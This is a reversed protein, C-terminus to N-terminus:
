RSLFGRVRNAFGRPRLEACLVAGAGPGAEGYRVRPDAPAGLVSWGDPGLEYVEEESILFGAREFESRWAPAPRQVFGGLDEELGTPVTVLLRGRPAIIRRLEALSRGIGTEDREQELGYETNDYGVHELTSVCLILEFARDEFPLDRLDARVAELGPVEATALDVGTLGSAGLRTLAGLYAPLAFAYGVDLVRQEGRYRSLVWPMEVCREDSAPPGTLGRLRRRRLRAKEGAAVADDLQLLRRFEESEVIDSLARARSIERRRLDATMNERAAPDPPRRLLLGYAREVFNEDSVSALAFEGTLREDV